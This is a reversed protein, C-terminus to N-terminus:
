VLGTDSKHIFSALSENPVFLLVNDVAPRDDAQAYERKALERM